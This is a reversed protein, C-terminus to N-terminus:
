KRRLSPSTGNGRRAKASPTNTGASHTARTCTQRATVQETAGVRAFAPYSSSPGGRARLGARGRKASPCQQQAPKAQGDATRPPGRHEGSGKSAQARRQKRGADQELSEQREKAPTRPAWSATEQKPPQKEARRQHPQNLQKSDHSPATIARAMADRHREADLHTERGQPSNQMTPGHRQKRTPAPRSSPKSLEMAHCQCEQQQKCLRRMKNANTLPAAM